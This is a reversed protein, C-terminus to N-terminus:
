DKIEFDLFEFFCDIVIPNIETERTTLKFGSCENLFCDRFVIKNNAQRNNNLQLITIDMREPYQRQDSSNCVTDKVWSLLQKYNKLDEDLRFTIHLPGDFLIKDTPHKIDVYSGTHQVVSPVKVAPINFDEMLYKVEPFGEFIAEFANPSAYNDNEIRGNDIKLKQETM